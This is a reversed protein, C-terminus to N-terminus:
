FKEKLTELFAVEARELHTTMGRPLVFLRYFIRGWRSLLGGGGVCRRSGAVDSNGSSGLWRAEGGRAGSSASRGNRGAWNRDFLLLTAAGSAAMMEECELERTEM